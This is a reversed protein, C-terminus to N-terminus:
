LTRETSAGDPLVVDIGLYEAVGPGPDFVVDLALGEPLKARLETLRKQVAARVDQARTGPIRSVVLAVVPKGGLTAFGEEGRGVLQVRAVGAIRALTDKLQGDAYNSLYRRDHRGAPATLTTILLVGPAEKWVRFGSQKVADPLSP